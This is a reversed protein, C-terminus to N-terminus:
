LSGTVVPRVDNELWTMGVLWDCGTWHEKEVIGQTCCVM